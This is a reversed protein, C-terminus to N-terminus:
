VVHRQPRTGSPGALLVATNEGLYSAAVMTRGPDHMIRQKCYYTQIVGGPDESGPASPASPPAEDRVRDRRASGRASPRRAPGHPVTSPASACCRPTADVFARLATLEPTPEAYRTANIVVPAPSPAAGRLAPVGHGIAAALVFLPLAVSRTWSKGAAAAPAPEEVLLPHTSTSTAADLEALLTETAAEDLPSDPMEHVAPAPHGIEVLLRSPCSEERLKAAAEKRALAAPCPEDLRAILRHLTGPTAVAAARIPTLESVPTLPATANPTPPVSTSRRSGAWGDAVRLLDALAPSDPADTDEDLPPRTPKERERRARWRPWAAAKRSPPTLAVSLARRTREQQALEDYIPTGALGRDVAARDRLGAAAVVRPPRGAGATAAVVHAGEARRPEFNRPPPVHPAPAEQAAPVAAGVIRPKTHEGIVRAVSPHVARPPKQAGKPAAVNPSLAGLPKRAHARARMSRPTFEPM